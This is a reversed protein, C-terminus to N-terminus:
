RHDQPCTERALLLDRSRFRRGLTTKEIREGCAENDATGVEGNVCMEEDLYARLVETEGEDFTGIFGDLM